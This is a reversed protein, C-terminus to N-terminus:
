HGSVYQIVGWKGDTMWGPDIEPLRALADEPMGVGVECKLVRLLGLPAPTYALVAEVPTNYAWHRDGLWRRYNADGKSLVLAAGSLEQRMARPMEWGALPSNWYYDSSIQLRREVLNDLLRGAMGRAGPGGYVALDDLARRVDTPIADSVFTPHAKAWLRVVLAAGRRLLGDALMLDFALEAGTNDLVIDVRGSHKQLYEVIASVDDCLVHEDKGGNPAEKKGGAPWMSLDSQNGWLDLHLLRALDLPHKLREPQLEAEFPELAQRAQILGQAKQYAFPDVGLGAGPQFYGSAELIRRYFYTEVFFLPAELWTRGEYPHIYAQWVALDPAGLELLPRIHGYPLDEFLANLRSAIHPPFNSEALARRGIEPLRQTVTRHSFTGSEAGRLPGPIPLSPLM